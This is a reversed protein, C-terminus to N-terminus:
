KFYYCVSMESPGDSKNLRDKIKIAATPDGEEVANTLLYLPNKKPDKEEM